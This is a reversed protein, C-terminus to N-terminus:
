FAEFRPTRRVSVIGQEIPRNKRAFLEGSQQEAGAHRIDRGNRCLDPPTTLLGVASEARRVTPRRLILVCEM